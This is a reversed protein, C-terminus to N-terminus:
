SVRNVLDLDFRKKLMFHFFREKQQVNINDISQTVEAEFKKTWVADFGTRMFLNIWMKEGMISFHNANEEHKRDTDPAPVEIYMLADKKLLRNFEMLTFLPFPSHEITQRCWIFDVSADSLDIFSIDNKLTKLGKADCAAIDQDNLTIGTVDTYGMDRAKAMWYGSGCGIDLIRADKPIDLPNFFSDSFQDILVNHFNPSEPEHEITRQALTLYKVFKEYRLDAM